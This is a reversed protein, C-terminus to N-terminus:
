AAALYKPNPVTKYIHVLYNIEKNTADNDITSLGEKKEIAIQASDAATFRTNYSFGKERLQKHWGGSERQFLLMNDAQLDQAAVSGIILCFAASFTAKLMHVSIKM